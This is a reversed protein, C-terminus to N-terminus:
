LFRLLFGNGTKITKERSPLSKSLYMKKAQQQYEHHYKTPKSLLQTYFAATL